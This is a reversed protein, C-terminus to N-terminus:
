NLCASFINSLDDWIIRVRFANSEARHRRYAVINPQIFRELFIPLQDGVLHCILEREAAARRGQPLLTPLQLM